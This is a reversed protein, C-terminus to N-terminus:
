SGVLVDDDGIEPVDIQVVAFKEAETYRYQHNPVRLVVQQRRLTGIRVTTSEDKQSCRKAPNPRGDLLFHNRDDQRRIHNRCEIVLKMVKIHQQLM